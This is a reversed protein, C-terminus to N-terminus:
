ALLQERKSQYMEKAVKAQEKEEENKALRDILDLNNWFERLQLRFFGSEDITRFADKFLQEVDGNEIQEELANEIKEVSPQNKGHHSTACDWFKLLAGTKYAMLDQYIKELASYEQKDDRYKKEATREFKFSAKAEVQKGDIELYM